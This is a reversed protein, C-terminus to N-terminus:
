VRGAPRLPQQASRRAHPAGRPSPPAAAAVVVAAAARCRPARAKVDSLARAPPPAADLSALLALMLKVPLELVLLCVGSYALLVGTPATEGLASGATAAEAEAQCKALFAQVEALRDGPATRAALVM